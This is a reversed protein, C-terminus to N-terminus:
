GNSSRGQTQQGPEPPALADDIIKQAAQIQQITKSVGGMPGQLQIAPLFQRLYAWAEEPTPCKPTDM